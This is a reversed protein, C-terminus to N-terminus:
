KAFNYGVSFSMWGKGNYKWTQAPSSGIYDTGFVIGAQFKDDLEWVAGAAFSIGSKNDTKTSDQPNSVPIPSYGVSIIPTFSYGWLYNKQGVYYGVTASGALSHDTFRFKFPVILTGHVLTKRISNVPSLEGPDPPDKSETERYIVTYYKNEGVSEKGPASPESPLCLDFFGETSKCKIQVQFTYKYPDKPDPRSGKVTITTNAPARYKTTDATGDDKRDWALFGRFDTTLKFVNGVYNPKAPEKQKQDSDSKGGPKADPTKPDPNTKKSDSDEPNPKQPAQAASPDAAVAFLCSVLAWVAIRARILMPAESHM